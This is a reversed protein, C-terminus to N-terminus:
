LLWSSNMIIGVKEVILLIAYSDRETVFGREKTIIFFSHFSSKLGFFGFAAVNMTKKFAHTSM